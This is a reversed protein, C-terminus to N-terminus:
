SVENKQGINLVKLEENEIELRKAKYYWRRFIRVWEPDTGSDELYRIQGQLDDTLKM